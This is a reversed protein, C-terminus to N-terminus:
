TTESTSDFRYEYTYNTLRKIDGTLGQQLQDIKRLIAQVDQHHIKKLDKLASSKVEITYKM